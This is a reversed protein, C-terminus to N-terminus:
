VRERCSARGIEENGGQEEFSKRAADTEAKQLKYFTQKLYDIEQREAKGGNADIEKLREIVEEKTQKPEYKLLAEKEKENVLEDESSTTTEELQINEETPLTVAAAEEEANGKVPQANASSTNTETEPTKDAPVEALPHTTENSEM